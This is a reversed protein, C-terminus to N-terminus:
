DCGMGESGLMCTTGVCTLLWVAIVDRDCLLTMAHLGYRSGSLCRGQILWNWVISLFSTISRTCRLCVSTTFYLRLSRVLSTCAGEFRDGMEGWVRRDM